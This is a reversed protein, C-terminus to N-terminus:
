IRNLIYYKEYNNCERLIKLLMVFLEKMSVFDDTIIITKVNSYKMQFM